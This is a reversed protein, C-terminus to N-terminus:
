LANERSDFPKQKMLIQRYIALLILNYCLGGIQDTPFIQSTAALLNSIM